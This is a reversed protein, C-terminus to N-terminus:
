RQEARRHIAHVIIDLSSLAPSSVSVDVNDIRYSGLNSVLVSITHQGNLVLPVPKAESLGSTRM